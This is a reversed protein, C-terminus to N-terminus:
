AVRRRRDKAITEHERRALWATSTFLYPENSTLLREVEDRDAPRWLCVVLHPILSLRDLWLAQRAAVKGRASKLEAILYRYVPAHGRHTVGPIVRIGFWDPFGDDSARSDHTHYQTDWGALEARQHLWDQYSTESETGDRLLASGM